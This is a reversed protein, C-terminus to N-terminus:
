LVEMRTKWYEVLDMTGKRIPFDAHIISQMTKRFLDEDKSDYGIKLMLRLPDDENPYEDKYRQAWHISEKFMDNDNFYEILLRYYKRESKKQRM